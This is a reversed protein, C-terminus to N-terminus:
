SALQRKPSADQTKVREALFLRFAAEERRTYDPFSKNTPTGKM